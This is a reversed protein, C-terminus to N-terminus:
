KNGYYFYSELAVNNPTFTGNKPSSEESPRNLTTQTKEPAKAIAKAQSLKAKLEKIEKEYSQEMYKIYDWIKKMERAIGENNQRIFRKILEEDPKQQPNESVKSNPNKQQSKQPQSPNPMANEYLESATYVADDFNSVRGSKTLEKIMLNMKQTKAIDMM